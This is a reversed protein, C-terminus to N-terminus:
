RKIFFAIINSSWTRINAFKADEEEIKQEDFIKIIMNIIIKIVKLPHGTFYVRTMRFDRFRDSLSVDDYRRLHGIRKDHLLNIPIFVPFIYKYKVPVTIMLGGGTKLTRKIENIVKREAPIHELVANIVFYDCVNNKFPLQDASCCVFSLNNELGLRKVMRKLTILNTLTLDTAIVKAGLKALGIAMYGNGTGVELISKNKIKKFNDTFRELYRIEHQKMNIVSDIKRKQTTKAFYNKEFYIQQKQSHTPLNPFDLLIPIGQEIAFRHKLKSCVLSHNIKNFSSKCLPCRICKELIYNM